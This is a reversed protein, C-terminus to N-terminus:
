GKSKQLALEILTRAQSEIFERGQREVSKRFYELATKMKDGNDGGAAFGASVAREAIAVLESTLLKLIPQIFALIDPKVRLFFAKIATWM